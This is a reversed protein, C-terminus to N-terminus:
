NAHIGWIADHIMGAFFGMAILYGWSLADMQFAANLGVFAVATWLLGSAIRKAM